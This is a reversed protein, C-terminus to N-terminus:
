KKVTKKWDNLEDLTWPTVRDETTKRLNNVDENDIVQAKNGFSNRIYSLVSAIYQDSHEKQPQMIDPYKINDVPGKLGHVVINLLIDKDGIVRPSGALPPALKSVIGKGDVGHCTACLQKFNSAGEVVLDIEYGEM